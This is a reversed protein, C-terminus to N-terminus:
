SGSSVVPGKPEVIFCGLRVRSRAGTAIRCRVVINMVRMPDYVQPESLYGEPEQKTYLGELDFISYTTGAGVGERFILQDVPVLVDEVSVKYFCAMRNNALTPNLAAPVATAFVSYNTGVAALTMTLWGGVGAGFDAVPDAERVLAEEASGIVKMFLARNILKMVANKRYDARESPLLDDSPLVYSIQFDRAM